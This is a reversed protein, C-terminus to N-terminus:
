NKKLGENENLNKKHREEEERSVLSDTQSKVM